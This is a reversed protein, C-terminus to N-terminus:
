LIKVISAISNVVKSPTKAQFLLCSLHCLSRMLLITPESKSLVRFSFYWSKPGRAYKLTFNLMRGYRRIM